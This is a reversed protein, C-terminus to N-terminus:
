RAVKRMERAEHEAVLQDTAEKAWRLELEGAVENLVMRWGTVLRDMTRAEGAVDAESETILNNTPWLGKRMDALLKARAKVRRRRSARNDEDEAM